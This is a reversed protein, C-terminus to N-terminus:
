EEYEIQIATPDPKISMIHCPYVWGTRKIPAMFLDLDSSAYSGNVKGKDDFMFVSGGIVARFKETDKCATKFYHTETAQKGNRTIVPDGALARELNFPKM